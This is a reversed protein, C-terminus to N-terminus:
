FLALALHFVPAVCLRFGISIFPIRAALLVLTCIRAVAAVNPTQLEKTLLFQCYCLLLRMDRVHVFVAAQRRRRPKCQLATALLAAPM